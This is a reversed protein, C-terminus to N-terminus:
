CGGTTSVIEPAENTAAPPTYRVFCNPVPKGNGDEKRFVASGGAEALQFGEFEALTEDISATDPYGFSMGVVQGEMTVSTSSPNSQALWLAHALSAGSRLDGALAQTAALRTQGELSTLQPVAFAALIGLITIIIVIEVLSFGGRDVTSDM